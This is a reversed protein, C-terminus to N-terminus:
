NADCGDLGKEKVYASAPESARVAFRDPYTTM